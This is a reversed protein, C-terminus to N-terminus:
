KGRDDLEVRLREITQPHAIYYPKRGGGVFFEYVLDDPIRKTRYKIWPKLSKLRQWWTLEVTVTNTLFYSAILPINNFTSYVKM